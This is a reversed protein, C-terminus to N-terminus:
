CTETKNNSRKKGKREEGRREERQRERKRERPITIKIEEQNKGAKMPKDQHFWEQPFLFSKELETSASSLNVLYKETDTCNLKGNSIHSDFIAFTASKLWLDIDKFNRQFIAGLAWSKSQKKRTFFNLILFM